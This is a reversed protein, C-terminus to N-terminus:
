INVLLEGTKKNKCALQQNWFVQMYPYVGVALKRTLEFPPFCGRRVM